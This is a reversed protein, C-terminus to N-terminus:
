SLEHQMKLLKLKIMNKNIKTLKASNIALELEKLLFSINNVSQNM